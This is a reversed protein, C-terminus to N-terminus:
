PVIRGDTLFRRYNSFRQTIRVRQTSGGRMITLTDISAPLLLTDEPDQFEVRTYRISSEAREIIMSRAAWRRVHERPVDFEFRRALRDDLRLVDYTEADVWVRGRSRGLLAVSVCADTWSIEPLADSRGQYDIRLALRGDVRATGAASFESEDLRAPLLMALPEPSVAKPDMCRAGAREEESRGDEGAPERLVSAVPVGDSGAHGPDWGVRLEFTLRRPFGTPALNSGLPQIRVTETSVVNQARDYWREVQRGVRALTRALDESTFTPRQAADSTASAGAM